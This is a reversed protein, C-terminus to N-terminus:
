ELKSSIETEYLEKTVKSIIGGRRAVKINESLGKPNEKIAIDRTSVEGLDTLIVEIDSMNDRLSEKTLGKSNKYEKSTMGSWTKYIEDTLLTYEYNKEIGGEKWVDTLKKRNLIGKLRLGIWIDDYGKNRYYTIARDIALSPDYVEDIRESGLSALWLKFPEAKPSPISEILRLIGKTDLCDTKYLKGDKFSKLKLERCKTPLKSKEDHLLRRKLTTWYDSPDKPEALANIVDVVSFYYDEKDKDWVSRIRRGDFIKNITELKNM